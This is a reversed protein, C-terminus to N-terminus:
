EASSFVVCTQSQKTLGRGAAPVLLEFSPGPLGQKCSELAQERRGTVKRLSLNKVWRRSLTFHCSVSAKYQMERLTVTSVSSRRMHKNGM